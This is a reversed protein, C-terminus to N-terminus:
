RLSQGSEATPANPRRRASHRLIVARYRHGCRFRCAGCELPWVGHEGGRCQRGDGGARIGPADTKGLQDGCILLDHMKVGLSAATAKSIDFRLQGVCSEYDSAAVGAVLRQECIERGRYITGRDVCPDDREPCGGCDPPFHRGSGGATLLVGPTSTLVVGTTCPIRELVIWLLSDSPTVPIHRNGLSEEHIRSVADRRYPTQGAMWHLLVAERQRTDYLPAIVPQQLSFVGTRVQYDGWSELANHVPLQYTCLQGTESEAEALDVSLPVHKLAEAYGFARPLDYVPNVGCHLVM